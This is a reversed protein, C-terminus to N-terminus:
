IPVQRKRVYCEANSPYPLSSIPETDTYHFQTPHLTMMTGAANYKLSAASYIHLYGLGRDVSGCSPGELGVAIHSFYRQQPTFCCVLSIM